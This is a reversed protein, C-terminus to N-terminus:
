TAPRPGGADRFHDALASVLGEISHEAAVVDVSIGAEAATEATVPGICAVVPPVREVGVLELFGTVTSSSTFTVADAHAVAALLTPDPEPRVTRYAEVVDVEYGARRLGDPLVDRAVAARPLLVREARRSSRSSPAPFAELLSEAVFRDPVLDAAVGREVLAAATGPGIAAVRVGGLARADSLYAFLREVANASTLVVWDYSGVGAAAAALAAGADSPERIETTPLEIAAAGQESLAAVLRSAQQRSRTVVVRRGLLPLHEFWGLDLGAVDGIVITAPPSVGATALGALTTRVSRQDPLTGNEVVLVPTTPPRGARVLREAIEARPGVAMLLVLTGGLRGLADWDV